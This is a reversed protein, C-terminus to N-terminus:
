HIADVTRSGNFEDVAYPLLDILLAGLLLDLLLLLHSWHMILCELSPDLFSPPTPPPPTTLNNCAVISDIPMTPFEFAWFYPQVM